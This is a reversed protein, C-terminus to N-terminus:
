DGTFNGAPKWYNSDKSNNHANVAEIFWLIAKKLNHHTAKIEKGDVRAKITHLVNLPDSTVPYPQETHEAEIPGAKTTVTITQM